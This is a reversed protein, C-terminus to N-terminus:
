ITSQGTLLPIRNTCKSKLRPHISGIMQLDYILWEKLPKIVFLKFITNNYIEVLLLGWIQLIVAM